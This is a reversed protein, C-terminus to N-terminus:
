FDQRIQEATIIKSLLIRRTNEDYKGKIWGIENILNLRESEEKIIIYNIDKPQFSLKAKKLKENEESLLPDIFQDERLMIQKGNYSSLEPVYRWEREDYYKVIGKDTRCEFSKTFSFLKLLLGGSRSLSRIVVGIERTKRVDKLITILVDGLIQTTYSGSRLYLVPNLKNKGAWEKSMGIGYDGYNEMHKHALSLPIDCFSVMPIGLKFSDGEDIYYEELSFQPYFEDKLIGLLNEKETFHFLTSSSIAPM